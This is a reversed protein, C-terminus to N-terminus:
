VYEPFHKETKKYVIISLVFIGIIVGLNIWFINWNDGAFDKQYFIKRIAILPYFVPNYILFTMIKDPIMSPVYFVPSVYLWITLFIETFHPIDRIFVTISALILGFSYSLLLLMILMLPFHILFIILSIKVGSVFSFLTLILLNIAFIITNVIIEAMLLMEYDFKIKQIIEHNKIFTFCSNILNASLFNWAVIGSFLFLPFNEVQIKLIYKFVITFIVAMIIPNFFSWLIGLYSGSYKLKFVLHFLRKLLNFRKM